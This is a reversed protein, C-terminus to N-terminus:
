RFSKLEHADIVPENTPRPADWPLVDVVPLLGSPSLRGEERLILLVLPRLPYTHSSTPLGFEDGVVVKSMGQTYSTAIFGIRGEGNPLAAVQSRILRLETSQPEVFLTLVNKATVFSTAAVLAVAGALALRDIAPWLRAAARSRIRARAAMWIGLVGLSTYLVVLASLGAQTRYTAGNDSVVLNPLYSLPVLLLAVGLCTLPRECRGRALLLMGGIAIAGVIGALWPSPTVDVLNLARYLPQEVFWRAKGIPDHAITNRHAQPGQGVLHVGLRVALFAGPLAIAAVGLHMRLLRATRAGNAASGVLAVALFVWFFMAAPQYVLLAALLMLTAVTLREPMLGRPAGVAATAVISAGGALISAYPAVFLAAWSAYVQFAPMTCTLVAILAAPVTAIRSRVLERHLLLALLVIGAVATLRLFRLNDITGAASYFLDHLVGSLPRGGATGNEILSRGFMPSPERSVALWLFSYDDTFGYPVILTPLFVAIIALAIGVLARGHGAAYARWPLPAPADPTPEAHQTM